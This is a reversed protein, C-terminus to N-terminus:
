TAAGRHPSAHLLDDVTVLVPEAPPPVTEVREAAPVVARILETVESGLKEGTSGCGSADFRIRVVGDEIADLEADAGRARLQPRLEDLAGRVREEEGHPHVDHVLLLHALLEDGLLRATTGTEAALAVVRALAEGYLETLARVIEGALRGGPEGEHRELRGLLEEVTRVHGHLRDADWSM